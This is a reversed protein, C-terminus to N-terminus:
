EGTERGEIKLPALYTEHKEIKGKTRKFRAVKQRVDEPVLDNLPDSAPVLDGRASAVDVGKDQNKRKKKRIPINNASPLGEKM